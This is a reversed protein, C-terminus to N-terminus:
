NLEALWNRTELIQQLRRLFAASYAGDFARHDFSQALVGIPRIAIADGEPSEIVVPKKHVGDLSLIAVQPQNIIPATILTGFSGSNSLTYTGGSVEDAGLSNARAKRVLAHIERALGRVNKHNADRLVPVMLGEFDLDVAIGLNIRRHVVLADNSFTANILPFDALAQCTAACVFPLYTLSFGEAAKWDAGKAQRAREVNQFNVEVAQLTHVSTAISRVMHAATVRRIKNLPVVRDDPSVTTAPPPTPAVGGGSMRALMDERTIRGDRGTGNVSHASLGSEALLRRVLPSLKRGANRTVPHAPSALVASELAPAPAAPASQGAAPTTYSNTAAQSATEVIALLTGVKVTSGAEVLIERLVGPAPAPIETTVKDTEVEFLREDAAVREGPKKYWTTILGELVTEGLQPMIIDM